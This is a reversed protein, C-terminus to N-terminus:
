ILDFEDELEDAIIEEIIDELTVIGIVKKYPDRGDLDNV